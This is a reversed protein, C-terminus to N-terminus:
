LRLLSETEQGADVGVVVAFPVLLFFGLACASEDELVARQEHAPELVELAVEVAAVEDELVPPVVVPGDAVALQCAAALQGSLGQLVLPVPLVVQGLPISVLEHAVAVAEYAGEALALLVALVAEVLPVVVLDKNLVLPLELVSQQPAPAGEV